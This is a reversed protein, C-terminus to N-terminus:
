PRGKLECLLGSLILDSSTELARHMSEQGRGGEDEEGELVRAMGGGGEAGAVLLGSAAAHKWVSRITYETGGRARIQPLPSLTHRSLAYSELISFSTLGNLILFGM